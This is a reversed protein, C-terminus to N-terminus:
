SGALAAVSVAILEVASLVLPISEVVGSCVTVLVSIDIAEVSLSGTDEVVSPPTIGSCGEVAPPCLSGVVVPVGTTEVVSSIKLGVTVLEVVWSGRVEGTVTVEEGSPDSTGVVRSGAVDVVSFNEGDVSDKLELVSKTEVVSLEAPGDVLPDKAVFSGAEDVLSVIVDVVSSVVAEDGFSGAAEVASVGAADSAVTELSTGISTVEGAVWSRAVLAVGEGVPESVDPFSVVMELVCDGFCGEEESGVAAFSVESEGELSSVLVGLLVCGVLGTVEVSGDDDEDEGGDSTADVRFGDEVLAEESVELTAKWGVAKSCTLFEKPVVRSVDVSAAGDVDATAASVDVLSATSSVVTSDDGPDVSDGLRTVVSSAPVGGDSVGEEKSVTINELVAAAMSGDVPCRGALEVVIGGETVTDLVSFAMGEVALVEPCVGTVLEGRDDMDSIEVVMTPFLAVSLEM